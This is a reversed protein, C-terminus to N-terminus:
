RADGGRRSPHIPDFAGVSSSGCSRPTPRCLSPTSSTAAVCGDRREGRLVFTFPSGELTRLLIRGDLFLVGHHALTRSPVQVATLHPRRRGRSDPQEQPLSSCRASWGLKAAELDRRSNWQPLVDAFSPADALALDSAAQARGAGSGSRRRIRRRSTRPPSMCSSLRAAHRLDSTQAKM